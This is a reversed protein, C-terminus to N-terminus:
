PRPARIPDSARNINIVVAPDIQRRNHFCIGARPHLDEAIASISRKFIHAVRQSQIRHLQFRRSSQNGGIHVAIARGVQDHGLLISRRHQQAIHARVLIVKHAKVQGAERVVLRPNPRLNLHKRISQPLLPFKGACRAVLRLSRRLNKHAKPLRRADVQQSNQPRRAHQLVLDIQRLLAHDRHLFRIPAAARTGTSNAHSPCRYLNTVSTIPAATTPCQNVGVRRLM